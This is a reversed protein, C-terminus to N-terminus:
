RNEQYEQVADLTNKARSRLLQFELGRSMLHKYLLNKLAVKFGEKDQILEDITAEPMSEAIPINQSTLFGEFALEADRLDQELKTMQRGVRYFDTLLKKVEENKIVEIRGTALVEDYTSSELSTSAPASLYILKSDLGAQAHELGFIILSDPYLNMANQFFRKARGPFVSVSTKLYNEGIDQLLSDVVRSKNYSAKGVREIITINEALEESFRELYYTEWAREKQQARWNNVQLALLIGVMVLLTEGIAYLLYKKAQGSGLLSKRIRRFFYLM